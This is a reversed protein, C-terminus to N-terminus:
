HLAPNVESRIAERYNQTSGIVRLVQGSNFRAPNNPEFIRNISAIEADSFLGIREMREIDMSYIEQGARLADQESAGEGLARLYNALAQTGVMYLMAARMADRDM